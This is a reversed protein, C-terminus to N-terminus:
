NKTFFLEKMDVTDYRGYLFTETAEIDKAPKDCKFDRCILPRVKYITCIKKENDRFPCIFDLMATESHICQQIHHKKKYKKIAKIECKSLPLLNSCCNGCSSCKGKDTFNYIGKKMDSLFDSLTSQKM